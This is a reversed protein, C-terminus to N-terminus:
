EVATVVTTIKIGGEDTALVAVQVVVDPKKQTSLRRNLPDLEGPSLLRETLLRAVIYMSQGWIHPLPGVLHRKVSGPKEKEQNHMGPPVAYSMPIWPFSARESEVSTLFM